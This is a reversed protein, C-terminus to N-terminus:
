VDNLGCGVGPRGRGTTTRGSTRRQTVRHRRLTTHLAKIAQIIVWLSREGKRTRDSWTKQLLIM